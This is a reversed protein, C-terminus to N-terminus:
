TGPRRPGRVTVTVSFVKTPTATRHETPGYELDLLTQGVDGATFQFITKGGSSVANGAQKLQANSIHTVQWEFATLPSALTLVLTDGPDVSVEIGMDEDTVNVTAAHAPRPATLLLAAVGLYAALRTMSALVRDTMGLRVM